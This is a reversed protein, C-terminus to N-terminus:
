NVSGSTGGAVGVRSPSTASSESEGDQANKEQEREAQMQSVHGEIAARITAVDETPLSNLIAEKDKESKDRIPLATASWDLLYALIQAMGVRLPDARLSGDVGAIYLNKFMETQEGHNLRKKVIVYEGNTLDLRCTEPTVIQFM